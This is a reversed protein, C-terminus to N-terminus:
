RKSVCDRRLREQLEPRTRACERRDRYVPRNRVDRVGNRSVGLSLSAATVSNAQIDSKMENLARKCRDRYDGADLTCMRAPEKHLSAEIELCSPTRNAM